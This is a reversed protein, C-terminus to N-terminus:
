CMERAVNPQWETNGEKEKEKGNGNGNGNGNRRGGKRAHRHMDPYEAMKQIDALDCGGHAIEIEGLSQSRVLTM